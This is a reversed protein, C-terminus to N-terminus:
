SVSSCANCCHIIDLAYKQALEWFPEPLKKDIMIATAMTDIIGWLREIYAMVEPTYACCTRRNGGVSKLFELVADSKFEGNDSQIIFEKLSHNM